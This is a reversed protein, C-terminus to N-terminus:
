YGAFPDPRGASGDELSQVMTDAPLRELYAWDKPIFTTQTGAPPLPKTYIHGDLNIATQDGNRTVTFGNLTAYRQSQNLQTLFAKIGEFSGVLAMKFGIAKTSDAKPKASKGASSKSSRSRSNKEEPNDGDDAAKPASAASAFNMTTLILGHSKALSEMETAFDERKEIIPILKEALGAKEQLVAGAAELELLQAERKQLEALGQAVTARSKKATEWGQYAPWLGFWGIGVIILVMMIGILVAKM